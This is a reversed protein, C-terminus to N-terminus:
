ISNQKGPHQKQSEQSIYTYGYNQPTSNSEENNLSNHM